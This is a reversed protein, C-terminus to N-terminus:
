GSGKSGFRAAREEELRDVIPHQKGPRVRLVRRVYEIVRQYRWEEDGLEPRMDPPRVVAVPAGDEDFSKYYDAAMALSLKGSIVEKAVKSRREQDALVFKRDENLLQERRDLESSLAALLQRAYPKLSALIPFLCIVVIAIRTPQSVPV